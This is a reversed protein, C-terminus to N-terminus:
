EELLQSITVMEYGLGKLMPIIRRLADPTPSNKGIFDHMLVISGDRANGKVNECIADVPTHAWDRTDISWLVITLGEDRCIKKVEDGCVGEPPRFFSPEIGTIGKLTRSCRIMDEYFANEQQKAPRCHSYTHNGIEHGEALTRKVLEPYLEANEGVFFFTAKVDYEKLIDLIKATYRPHPGDDFTLAVRPKEAGTAHSYVILPAAYIRLPVAFLLLLSFILCVYKRM